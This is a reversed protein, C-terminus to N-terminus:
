SESRGVDFRDLETSALRRVSPDADNAYRRLISRATDNALGRVVVAIRQRVMPAPDDTLEILIQAFHSRRTGSSALGSITAARVAAEDDRALATLQLTVRPDSDAARALAKAAQVRLDPDEDAALTLLTDVAAEGGISGLAEISRERVHRDPDQLLRLLVPTAADSGIRGLAYAAMTRVGVSQDDALAALPAVAEARGTAASLSSAAAVRVQEDVDGLATVLVEFARDNTAPDPLSGIAMSRVKSDSDASAATLLEIDQAEAVFGLAWLGVRRLEPTDGTVCELVTRRGAARHAHLLEIIEARLSDQDDGLDRASAHLLVPLAAVGDIGALVGAILDRGYFNEEDLFRNLAEVLQPVVTIDGSTALASVTPAIDDYDDELEVAHRIVAELAGRSDIMRAGHWMGAEFSGM